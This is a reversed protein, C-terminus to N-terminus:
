NFVKLIPKLLSKKDCLSESSIASPFAQDFDALIVQIKDLFEFSHSFFITNM